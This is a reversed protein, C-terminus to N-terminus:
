AEEDDPRNTKRRRVRAFTVGAGTLAVLGGAALLFQWSAPRTGYAGLAVYTITGPVIGVATALLYAPFRVMTLGSGYNVATFPLVPILRAGLVALVGHRDVLRDLRHLHRGALRAVGDRGLLRGVWFSVGAGVMAATWVLLVGVPLGFVLGAAISLINKPVLLMTAVVYGAAFGIPGWVGAEDLWSSIDREDLGPVFIWLALGCVVLVGLGALRLWVAPPAQRAAPVPDGQGM